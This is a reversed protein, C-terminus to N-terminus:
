KKLKAINTILKRELLRDSGTQLLADNMPLLHYTDISKAIKKM